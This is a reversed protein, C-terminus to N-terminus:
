AIREVLLKEDNFRNMEGHGPRVEEQNNKVWKIKSQLEEIRRERQKELNFVESDDLSDLLASDSLTPSPPASTLDAIDGRSSLPYSVEDNDRNLTSALSYQTHHQLCTWNFNWPSYHPPPPLQLDFRSADLLWTNTPTAGTRCGTAVLPLSSLPM